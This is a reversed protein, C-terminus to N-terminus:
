LKNAIVKLRCHIEFESIGVLNVSSEKRTESDSVYGNQKM